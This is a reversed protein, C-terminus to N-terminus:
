DASWRASYQPVLHNTSAVWPQPSDDREPQELLSLFEKLRDYAKAHRKPGTAPWGQSILWGDSRLHDWCLVVDYFGLAAAPLSFDNSAAVPVNEFCTGMEYGFWGM